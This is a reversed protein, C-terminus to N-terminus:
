NGTQWFASPLLKTLNSCNPIWWLQSLTFYSCPTPIPTCIHLRSRYCVCGGLQGEPYDIGTLQVFLMALWKIKLSALLMREEGSITDAGSGSPMTLSTLCWKVLVSILCLIGWQKKLTEVGRQDLLRHWLEVSPNGHEQSAWLRIWIKAVAYTAQFLLLKSHWQLIPYYLETHSLHGDM